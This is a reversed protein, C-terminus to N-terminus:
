RIEKDQDPHAPLLTINYTCSPGRIPRMRNRVIAQAATEQTGMSPPATSALQTTRVCSPPAMVSQPQESGNIALTRRSRTPAAPGTAPVVGQWPCTSQRNEQWRWVPAVGKLM